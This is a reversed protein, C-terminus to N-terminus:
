ITGYRRSPEQHRPLPGKGYRESLQDLFRRVSQVLTSFDPPEPLAAHQAYLRLAQEPAREAQAVGAKHGRIWGLRYVPDTERFAILERSSMQYIDAQSSAAPLCALVAEEYDQVALMLADLDRVHTMALEAYRASPDLRQVQTKAYGDLRLLVQRLAQGAHTLTQPLSPQILM